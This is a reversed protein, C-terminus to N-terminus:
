STSKQPWFEQIVVIIAGVLPVAIVIGVAGDLKFGILVALLIILPSGGVTKEMIKPILVYGELEHLLFYLLAVLLALGIGGQILGFFMAPIASVIPGIYPIVELVGAILALVLAYQIHLLSLGLWTILFMVACAVLQGLIWMGMKKQVKELLTTTVEHHISPVLSGIFRKMGNEEAVLYFSIIVISIISIVGNFIGFTGSIVGGGGTLKSLLDGILNTGSASGFINGFRNQFDILYDPLNHLLIKIQGVVLPIIAYSVLGILALVLIYVALVSAFRPIKHRKLYNVLPDLASSLIFAMILIVIIERVEWLFILILAVFIVKLIVQTSISLDKFKM